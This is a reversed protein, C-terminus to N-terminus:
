PRSSSGEMEELFVGIERVVDKAARASVGFAMHSCQLEVTRDSQEPLGRAAGPAILGDKRSWIALTPV